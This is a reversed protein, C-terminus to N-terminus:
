TIKFTLQYNIRRNIQFIIFKYFLYGIFYNIIEDATLEKHFPINIIKFNLFDNWTKEGRLPILITLLQSKINILFNQSFNRNVSFNEQTWFLNYKSRYKKFNRSTSTHVDIHWFVKEKSMKNAGKKSILYAATSGTLAHTFYTEHTPFLADSHLQIIDWDKDLITIDNITTNLINNFESKNFLPFADDEMILAIELNLNKIKECLLIHSLGCGIVGKPSFDIALNNIYNKYELHENNIANIGKFREINLGINELIPKQYNFNEISKDLNIVFTKMIILLLTLNLNIFQNIIKKLYNVLYILFDM